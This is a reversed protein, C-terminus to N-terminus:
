TRKTKVPRGRMGIREELRKIDEDTWVFYTGVKQVGGIARAGQNVRAHTLHLKSAVEASSYFKDAM